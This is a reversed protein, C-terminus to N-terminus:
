ARELVIVPIERDTKKQYEDYAPWTSVMTRWMDPKEEPTATRARAAFRDGKVQVQVEPNDRLNLYWAPPQDDGGKSAVVLLDDGYPQYILPNSRQQGSKRGTTTLILTQTGEWDHGEEGDTEVYRKVHEKGFLM